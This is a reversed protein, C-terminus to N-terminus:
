NASPVFFGFVYISAAQETPDGCAVSLTLTIAQNTSVAISGELKANLACVESACIQSGNATFSVTPATAAVGAANMIGIAFIHGNGPATIAVSVTFTGTNAGSFWSAGKAPAVQKFNAARAAYGAANTASTSAQGASTSAASASNGANTVATAATTASAAASTASTSAGSASSAANTKSTNAATASATAAGQSSSAATASSAAAHASTLIQMLSGQLNGNKAVSANIASALSQMTETLANVDKAVLAPTNENSM